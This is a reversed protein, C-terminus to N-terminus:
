PRCCLEGEGTELAQKLSGLANEWASVHWARAQEWEDGEPFGEHEVRVVSRGEVASDITVKVATLADEVNMVEAFPDPGRWTFSLLRPEEVRLFECGRTNMSDRNGPIFYLEFAGGVRPEIVAEPAFWLTLRDARTWAHWVLDPEADVTVSQRIAAGDIGSM